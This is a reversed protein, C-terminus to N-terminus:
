RYRRWFSTIAVVWLTVFWLLMANPQPLLGARAAVWWAPTVIFFLRFAVLKGVDNANREYEDASSYRWLGIAMALVWITIAFIAIGPAIPRNSFMGFAGDMNHSFVGYPLNNREAVQTGYILALAGVATILEVLWYLRRTRRTAPSMPEGSRKWPKLRLLGWLAGAGLLLGASLIAIPPWGWHGWLMHVSIMGGVVGAALAFGLLAAFGLLVSLAASTLSLPPAEDRVENTTM